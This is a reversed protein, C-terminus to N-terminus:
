GALQFIQASTIIKTVVAVAVLSLKVGALTARNPRVFVAVMLAVVLAAVDIKL